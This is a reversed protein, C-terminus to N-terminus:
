DKYVQKFHPYNENVNSYIMKVEVFDEIGQLGLERGIGSQKYGGWLGESPQTYADNIWVSGAKIKRSIKLAKRYDNTWISATLGYTVDNALSVAEDDTKFYMIVLVPGFIEEQAIKSKNDVNSFVTPEVFYGKELGNGTAKKGGILLKYGEKTGIEIYSLVKNEQSKSVLPGIDTDELRPNGLKLKKVSEVILNEVQSSIDEEVILRTTAGCAQGANRFMGFMLGRIAQNLNADKFLILPNKGGLELSIRKLDKSAEQMIWKGTTTEGTFSIKDVKSNKVLESGIKEGPGLVMNIVGKPIGTSMIIKALHYSIASTYSAPKWVITCGVALAPAIKRASQTLPFNWPTIAGVVGVPEKVLQVLDGNPLFKMNGYLKSGFGAYYEFIDASANVHAKAQRLPMGIEDMLLEVFTQSEERIKEAIKFLIRDRQKYDTVWNYKDNDFVERAVDVANKLDDISALHTKTVIRETDYPCERYYYQDSKIEEGNIISKAEIM